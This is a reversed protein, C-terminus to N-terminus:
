AGGGAELDGPLPSHEQYLVLLRDTVRMLVRRHVAAPESGFCVYVLSEAPGSVAAAAHDLVAVPPGAALAADAFAPLDDGLAAATRRRWAHWLPQSCAAGPPHGALDAALRGAHQRALPRGACRLGWPSRRLHALFRATDDLAAAPLARLWAAWDGRERAPLLGALLWPADAPCDTADVGPWRGHRRRHADALAATLELVGPLLLPELEAAPVAVWGRDALAPRLLSADEALPVVVDVLPGLRGAAGAAAVAAACEDLSGARRSQVQGRERRAPRGDAVGAPVLPALARWPAQAMRRPATLRQIEERRPTTLLLDERVDPGTEAADLTLVLPGERATEQLRYAVERPWRQLELLVHVRRASWRQAERAPLPQDPQWVRVRPQWAPHHRRAALGLNAATAADPCWFVTRDRAGAAALGALLSTTRGSGPAGALILRGPRGAATLAAIQERLPALDDGRRPWWRRSGSAPAAVADPAAAASVRGGVPTAALRRRWTRAADALGTLLGAAEGDGALAPAGALAALDAVAVHDGGGPAAVTWFGLEQGLQVREATGPDGADPVVLQQGADVHSDAALLLRSWAVLQELRGVLHDALGDRPGLWSVTRRTSFWAGDPAHYRLRPRDPAAPPRAGSAALWALARDLRGSADEAAPLEADVNVPGGVPAAAEHWAGALGGGLLPGLTADIRAALSALVLEQDRLAVEMRLRQPGAGAPPPPELDGALVALWRLRRLVQGVEGVPVGAQWALRWLPIAPAFGPSAPADEALAEHWAPDRLLALLRGVARPSGGGGLAALDHQDYLLTLSAAGASPARPALQVPDGPPHLLVAPGSAAGGATLRRLRWRRGDPLVLQDGADGHRRAGAAVAAAAVRAVSAAPGWIELPQERGQDAQGLLLEARAASADATAPGGTAPDGALDYGCEECLRGELGGSRESACQPCRRPVAPLPGRRLETWGAPLAGPPPIEAGLLRALYRAWAEPLPDGVLDVAAAAPRALWRLLWASAADGAQRAAANGARDTLGAVAGLDAPDAPGPDDALPLLRSADLVVIRDRPPLPAGSALCALLDDGRAWLLPAAVDAGSAPLVTAGPAALRGAVVEAGPPPADAVVLVRPVPRGEEWALLLEAAVDRWLDSAPAAHYRLGAPELTGASRLAPGDWGPVQGPVRGQETTWAAVQAVLETRDAPDLAVLEADAVGLDGAAQEPTDAGSLWRWWRADLVEVVGVPLARLAACELASLQRAQARAQERARDAAQWAALPDGAAPPPAAVQDLPALGSLVPVVVRSATAPPHEALRWPVDGFRGAAAAQWLGAGPGRPAVVVTGAAAGALHALPAAVAEAGALRSGPLCGAGVLRLRAPQADGLDGLYPRGYPALTAAFWAALDDQCWSRGGLLSLHRRGRAVLLAHLSRLFGPERGLLQWHIAASDLFVWAAESGDFVGWVADLAAPTPPLDGALGAVLGSRRVRQAYQAGWSGDDPVGLTPVAQRPLGAIREAYRDYLPCAGPARPRLTHLDLLDGNHSEVLRIWHCIALLDDAAALADLLALAASLDHVTGGPPVVTVPGYAERVQRRLERLRDARDLVVRWRREDPGWAALVHGPRGSVVVAVDQGALDERAPDLEGGAEGTVGLPDPRTWLLPLTWPAFAADMAAKQPAGLVAAAHLFSAAAAGRRGLEGLGARLAPDSTDIRHLVAQWLLGTELAPEVASQAPAFRGDQGPPQLLPHGLDERWHQRWPGCRALALRRGLPEQWGDRPLLPELIAEVLPDLPRGRVDEDWRAVVADPVAAGRWVLRGGAAKVLAVLDDCPEAPRWVAVDRPEEGWWCVAHVTGDDAAAASLWRRDTGAVPHRHDLLATAQRARAALEDDGSRPLTAALARAAAPRPVAPRRPDRGALIELRRLRSWDRQRGTMEDRECAQWRGLVTGADPAHADALRAALWLTDASTPAAADLVALLRECWAARDAPPLRDLHDCARTAIALRTGPDLDGAPDVLDPACLRGTLPLLDFIAAVLPSVPLRRAALRSAVSLYLARELLARTSEPEHHLDGDLRRSARVLEAESADGFALVFDERARTWRGPAAAQEQHRARRWFRRLGDPLTETLLVRRRDEARAHEAAELASEAARFRGAALDEHATALLQWYNM